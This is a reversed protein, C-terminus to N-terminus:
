SESSEKRPDLVNEATDQVSLFTRADSLLVSKYISQETPVYLGILIWSNGQMNGTQNPQMPLVNRATDNEVDIYRSGLLLKHTPVFENISCARAKYPTKFTCIPTGFTWVLDLVVLAVPKRQRRSYPNRTEWYWSHDNNRYNREVFLTHQEGPYIPGNKNSRM